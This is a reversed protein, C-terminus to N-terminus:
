IYSSLKNKECLGKTQIKKDNNEAELNKKM